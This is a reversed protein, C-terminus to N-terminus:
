IPVEPILVVLEPDLPEKEEGDQKGGFSYEQVQFAAVPECMPAGTGRTRGCEPEAESSRRAAKWSSRIVDRHVVRLGSYRLLAALGLLARPAHPVLPSAVDPHSAQLM